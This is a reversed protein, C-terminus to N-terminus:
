PVPEYTVQINEQPVVAFGPDNDSDNDTAFFVQTKQFGVIMGPAFRYVDQGVALITGVPAADTIRRLGLGRGYSYVSIIVNGYSATVGSPAAM